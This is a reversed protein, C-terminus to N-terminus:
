SLRTSPNLFLHSGKSQVFTKSVDYNLMEFAYHPKPPRSFYLLGRPTGSIITGGITIDIEGM